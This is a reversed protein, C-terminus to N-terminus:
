YTRLSCRSEQCTGNGLLMSNLLRGARGVFPEGQRDEDAGPAEGIVLWDADPNGVGFVTQTGHSMCVVNSYLGGGTEGSNDLAEPLM